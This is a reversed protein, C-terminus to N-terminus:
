AAVKALDDILRRVGGVRARPDDWAQQFVLKHDPRLKVLGAQEQIFRVLAEPNGVRDGRFAIVTPLAAARRDSALNQQQRPEEQM